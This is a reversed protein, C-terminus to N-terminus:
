IKFLREIINYIEGSLFLKLTFYLAYITYIIFIIGLIFGIFKM